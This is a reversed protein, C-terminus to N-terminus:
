QSELPLLNKNKLAIKEQRHFAIHESHTMLELNDPDNNGKDEDKHHVIEDDAHNKGPGHKYLPRGLKKEMVVIHELVYGDEAARPHEPRYIRVYGRSTTQNTGKFYPSNEGEQYQPEHGSLYRTPLGMVSVRDGKNDKKTETALPTDQGCGCFCKGHFIKKLDDLQSAISKNYSGKTRHSNPVTKGRKWHGTLRMVPLGQIAQDVGNRNKYYTAVATAGGCGCHCM